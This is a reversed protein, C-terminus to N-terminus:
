ETKVKQSKIGVLLSKLLVINQTLLTMSVGLMNIPAAMPATFPTSCAATWQLMVDSTTSFTKTIETMSDLIEEILESTKDGLLVPEEANGLLIADDKVSVKTAGGMITAVDKKLNILTDDSIVTLGESKKYTISADDNEFVRVYDIYDGDSVNIKNNSIIKYFGSTFVNDFIIVGVIDGEEPLQKVGFSFYWPLDETSIQDTYGNISVRCRFKKLPDNVDVVTGFYIRIEGLM